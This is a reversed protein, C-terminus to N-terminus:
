HFSFSLIRYDSLRQDDQLARGRFLLRYQREVPVGIYFYINHKLQVVSIQFVFWIFVLRYASCSIFFGNHKVTRSDVLFNM